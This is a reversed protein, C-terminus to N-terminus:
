AVDSANFLEVLAVCKFGNPMLYLYKDNISPDGAESRAIASIICEAFIQTVIESLPKGGQLAAQIDAQMFRDAMSTALDYGFPTFSAGAATVGGILQNSTSYSYPNYVTVGDIIIKASPETNSSGPDAPNTNQILIAFNFASSTIDAAKNYLLTKDKWGLLGSANAAKNISSIASEVGAVLTGISNLSYAAFWPNNQTVYNEIKSNKMEFVTPEDESRQDVICISSGGAVAFYSNEAYVNYTNWSLLNTAWANTLKSNLVNTTSQDNTCFINTTQYKFITNDVTLSCSETKVGIYGGSLELADVQPAQTNGVITLDKFTVNGSLNPGASNNVGINFLASQVTVVKRSGVPNQTDVFNGQSSDTETGKILPLGSGDIQFYNGNVVLDGISSEHYRWYCDGHIGITAEHAISYHNYPLKEDGVTYYQDESLEATINRHINIQHVNLDAFEVKFEENSHVNYGDNITVTQSVTLSSPDFTQLENPVLTVELVFTKGIASDKFKVGKEDYTMYENTTDEVNELFLKYSLTYTGFDLQPYDFTNNGRYAGIGLVNLDIMYYDASGVYYETKNNVVYEAKSTENVFESLSNGLTISTVSNIVTYTRNTVKDATVLQVTSIGAEQAVLYKTNNEEFIAFQNKGSELIVTTGEPIILRAGTMVTRADNVTEIVKFVASVKLDQKVNTFDVDWGVFVYGDKTPNVAPAVASSGEEIEQTEILVDENYFSVKYTQANITCGVLLIALTLLGIISFMLKKKM